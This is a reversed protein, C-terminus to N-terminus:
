AGGSKVTRIVVTHPECERTKRVGMRFLWPDLKALEGEWALCVRARIVVRMVIIPTLMPVGSWFYSRKARTEVVYLIDSPWACM